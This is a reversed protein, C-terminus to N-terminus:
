IVMKVESNKQIREFILLRTTEDAVELTANLSYYRGSSSINSLSIEPKLPACATRIVEKLKEQNEGIVKYEWICPYTIDPKRGCFPGQFNNDTM